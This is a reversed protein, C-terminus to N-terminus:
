ALTALWTEYRRDGIRPDLEIAGQLSIAEAAARADSPTRGFRQKFARTFHAANTFGWRYAIESVRMDKQRASMIESLCRRLRLERVCSAVGGLPQFLNYLATRSVGIALAVREPSLDGSALNERIFRQAKLLLAHDAATADHTATGNLAAAALELLARVAAMSDLPTLWPAALYLSGMFDALMRGAGSEPDPVQGHVSDPRLLLPALLTRPIVVCLIDFNSNHSDLIEGLDFAIPADPRSKVTRRGLTMETYGDVFVQIMYHDLGDGAIKSSPRDYKQASAIGRTLLIDGILYGEVEGTFSDPTRPRSSDLFVRMSERWASFREAHDLTSTTFLSSPLRSRRHREMRAHLNPLTRSAGEYM